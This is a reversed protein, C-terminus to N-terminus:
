GCRKKTRGKLHSVMRKAQGRTAQPLFQGGLFIDTRHWGKVINKPTDIQIWENSLVCREGCLKKVVIVLLHTPPQLQTQDRHPQTALTPNTLADAM